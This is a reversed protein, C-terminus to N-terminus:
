LFARCPLVSGYINIEVARTWENWDVDEIPGMPGYVGANSVLVHVRPCAAFAAQALRDVDSPKSVDAPIAAVVQNNSALAAVEDRAHRLKVADRACLVVSAGARVYARAIELGLGQSAGTIVAARGELPRDPTPM